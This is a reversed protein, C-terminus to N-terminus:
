RFTEKEVRWREGGNTSAHIRGHIDVYFVSSDLASAYLAQANVPTEELLYNWTKGKDRTEAVKTTVSFAHPQSSLIYAHTPSVVSTSLIFRDGNWPIQEWTDGQDLSIYPSKSLVNSKSALFPEHTGEVCVIGSFVAPTVSSEWTRNKLNFRHLKNPYAFLSYVNGSLAAGYLTKIGVLHNVMGEQYEAFRGLEQWSGSALDRTSYAVLGYRNVSALLWEDRHRSIDLILGADRPSRLRMWTSGGDDTMLLLGEEGGAAIHTADDVHLANIERVDGTDLRKWEGSFERVLIQGLNSGAFIEGSALQQADNFAYTSMKAMELKIVPDDTSQWAEVAQRKHADDVFSQILSVIPSGLTPHMADRRHDVKTVTNPSNEASHSWSLIPKMDAQQKLKPQYRDTLELFDEDSIPLQLITFGSDGTPQYVLVGLNSLHASEVNFSEPISELSAVIERGAGPAVLRELRYQGKPLMGTFVQTDTNGVRDQDAPKLSFLQDHEDRVQISTWTNVVWTPDIKKTNTAVRIIAAGHAPIFGDAETEPPPLTACGALSMLLVSLSFKIIIWKSKM